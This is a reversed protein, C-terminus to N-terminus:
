PIPDPIPLSDDKSLTLTIDAQVMEAPTPLFEKGPIDGLKKQEAAALGILDNRIQLVIREDKVRNMVVTFIKRLQDQQWIVKDAGQNDLRIFINLLKEIDGYSLKDAGEALLEAKLNYFLEQVDSKTQELFDLSTKQLTVARRVIAKTEDAARSEERFSKWDKGGSMFEPSGKKAWTNLTQRSVNMMRSIKSMSTNDLFLSLARQQDLESYKAM